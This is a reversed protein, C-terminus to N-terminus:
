RTQQGWTRGQCKLRVCGASRAMGSAAATALIRASAASVRILWGMMVWSVGSVQFWLAAFRDMHMGQRTEISHWWGAESWAALIGWSLLLGIACHIVGIAVLLWGGRRYAWM